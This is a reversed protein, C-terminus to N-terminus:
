LVKSSLSLVTMMTRPAEPSKALFFVTLELCHMREDSTNYIVGVLM